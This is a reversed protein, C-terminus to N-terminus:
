RNNNYTIENYYNEDFHDFIMGNKQMVNISAVNKTQAKCIITSFETYNLLFNMVFSLCKTMYGKNWWKKGIAYGVECIKKKFDKEVVSITGILQHSALIEIGWIYSYNVNYELIWKKLIYKTEIINNCKKWSCYKAVDCDSSCNKYLERLDNLELKRLCIDNSVITNTFNINNM